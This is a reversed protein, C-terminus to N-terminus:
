ETLAQMHQGQQNQHDLYVDTEGPEQLRRWRKCQFTLAEEERDAKQTM